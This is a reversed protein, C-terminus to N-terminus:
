ATKQMVVAVYPADPHNARFLRHSLPRMSPQYLRQELAAPNYARFDSYAVYDSDPRYPVDFYLWGGPKLWSVMREMAHTDGDTDTPDGYAGLGIHEVTSVAVICDFSEPPFNYLLVDGQVLKDAKPRDVKRWDIGTVHLDPRKEKLYAITDAEACGVELVHAHPPFEFDGDAWCRDLFGICLDLTSM